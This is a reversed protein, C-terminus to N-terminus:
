PPKMHEKKKKLIYKEETIWWENNICGKAYEWFIMGDSRKDGRKLKKDM